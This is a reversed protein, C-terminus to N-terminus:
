SYYTNLYDVLEEISEILQEKDKENHYVFEYDRLSLIEGDELGPRPQVTRPFATASPVFNKPLVKHGFLYDSIYFYVVQDKDSVEGIELVNLSGRRDTLRSQMESRTLIRNRDNISFMEVSWSKEQSM